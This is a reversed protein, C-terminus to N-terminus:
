VSSTQSIDADVLLLAGYSGPSVRHIVGRPILYYDGTKLRLTQEAVTLELEGDMVVLLEDFDTHYEDPIGQEGMKILKITANGVEGLLRSQWVTPLEQALSSLHGTNM